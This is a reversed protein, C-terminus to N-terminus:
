NMLAIHNNNFDWLGDIVAQASKCLDTTEDPSEQIKTLAVAYIVLFKMKITNWLREDRKLIKKTRPAKCWYIWNMCYHFKQTYNEANVIKSIVELLEDCANKVQIGNDHDQCYKKTLKKSYPRDLPDLARFLNVRDDLDIYTSVVWVCDRNLPCQTYM